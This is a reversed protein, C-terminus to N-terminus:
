LGANGPHQRGAPPDARRHPRGAGAAALRGVRQRYTMAVKLPADITVWAESRGDFREWEAAQTMMEVM